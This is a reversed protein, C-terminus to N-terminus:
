LTEKFSKNTRVFISIRQIEQSSKGVLAASMAQSLAEIM